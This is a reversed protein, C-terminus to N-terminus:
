ELGAPALRPTVRCVRVYRWSGRRRLIRARWLLDRRNLLREPPEPQESRRGAPNETLSDISSIPVDREKPSSFERRIGPEENLHSLYRTPGGRKPLERTARSENRVFRV